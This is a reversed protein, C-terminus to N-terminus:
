KQCTMGVFDNISACIDKSLLAHFHKLDTEFTHEDGFIKDEDYEFHRVLLPKWDEVEGDKDSNFIAYEYKGLVDIFSLDAFYWDSDHMFVCMIGQTCPNECIDYSENQSNVFVGVPNNKVVRMKAEMVSENMVFM